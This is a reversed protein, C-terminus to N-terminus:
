LWVEFPEGAHKVGMAYYMIKEGTMLGDCNVCNYRSNLNLKGPDPPRKMFQHRTCAALKARNQQIEALISTTEGAKLGLSQGVDELSTM